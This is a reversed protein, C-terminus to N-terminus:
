KRVVNVFAIKQLSGSFKNRVKEMFASVVFREPSIEFRVPLTFFTLDAYLGPPEDPRLKDRNWHLM